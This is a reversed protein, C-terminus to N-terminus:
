SASIIRQINEPAFFEPFPVTGAITGIFRNTEEQNKGLATLLQVQEPPPAALSALQCVFEYIPGVAENRKQEYVALAEDLSGQGSFGSDLAETLLEADWFADTIGQGTAPDRHYGADGVLAWGPGYPKRFFNPVGAGGVYREERKGTHVHEAFHPALALTKYFNGEIDARYESFEEPTWAVLICVLEDNTPIVVIARRDSLYFEMNETPLGSWYSYYFCNQVPKENYTPAQVTRAVLSYLGDAGIVTQAQATVPSGGQPHGRIGTILDGNTIIKQVVFGERVEAGADAAADLLIKDLVVRRPAYGEVVDPSPPPSGTLVVPGFDLMMGYIPPCNSAKVKELLGWRKLCAVGPQHIYHTSMTDSPFTAKDVLLVRYGKRALLLATSSGACRAGIIIADYQM